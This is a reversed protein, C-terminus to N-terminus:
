MIFKCFTKRHLPTLGYKKIMTIHVNTGYGKNKEFYYQPYNKSKKKMLQDRKVKALISAIKIAPINEDGKIVSVGNKVKLGGDLLILSKRIPIKYKKELKKLSRLAALNAASSVNIKDIVKPTVSTFVFPISKEKIKQFWKIRFFPTLKKSDRFPIQPLFNRIKAKPKLAVACVVLPGALSGRGVEDIGIIFLPKKLPQKAKLKQM